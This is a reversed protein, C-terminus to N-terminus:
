NNMPLTFSRSDGSDRIAAREFPEPSDFPRGGKQNYRYVISDYVEGFGNLLSESELEGNKNYHYRVGKILQFGDGYYKREVIKGQKNFKERMEAFEDESNMTTVILYPKDYVGVNDLEKLPQALLTVGWLIISCLLLWQKM